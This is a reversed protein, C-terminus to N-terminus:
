EGNRDVANDRLVSSYFYASDKPTRQQTAYDVSVLGFRKSYGYSWEFNDLLSWAYYATVPAGASIADHVAALHDRLYAVRDTDAIRGDPGPEDPFAAGNETVMLELGPREAAVRLLLVTLGRADITWGM